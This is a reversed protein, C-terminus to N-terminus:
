RPRNELPTDFAFGAAPELSVAKGQLAGYSGDHTITVSGNLGALGPVTSANVVGVGRPQITLPVSALLAGNTYWFDVNATVAQSTTNDLVVVTVQSGSNNFRPIRATTEYLRVRYTDDAGCTTGCSAGMVRVHQRTEQYSQRRQWRLSRAAGAGVPTSTFLVTSNDEGLLDLTLGPAADGSVEDLVVEWSTYPAQAIRFHDRDAVPGPDPAADGRIRAGHVLAQQAIPPADDDLITAIGPSQTVVGGGTPNSLNFLITENLEVASDGLIFITVDQFNNSGSFTMTGSAAIYDAGATATGDATAYDVTVTHNGLGLALVTLTCTSVGAGEEGQCHGAQLSPTPDGDFITATATGDLIEAGVPNSLNLTFTEDPEDLGDALVTVTVQATGAGPPFTVTGSAATYDTGATATGNATAYQVTIESTSTSTLFLTFVVNVPPQDGGFSDGVGIQVTGTTAAWAPGVPVSAALCLASLWLSRM